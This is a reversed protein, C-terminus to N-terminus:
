IIVGAVATREELLDDWTRMLSMNLMHAAVKSWPSNLGGMLCSLM